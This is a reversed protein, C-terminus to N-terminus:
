LQALIADYTGRGFAVLRLCRRQGAPLRRDLRRASRGGLARTYCSTLLDRDSAGRHLNPGVVTIEM